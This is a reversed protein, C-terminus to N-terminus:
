ANWLWGLQGDIVRSCANRLAHLWMRRPYTGEDHCVVEDENTRPHRVGGARGGEGFLLRLRPRQGVGCLGATGVM